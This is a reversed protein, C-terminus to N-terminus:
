SFKRRLQISKENLEIYKNREDEKTMNFEKMKASLEDAEETANKLKAQTETVFSTSVNYYLTSFACAIQVEQDLGNLYRTLSINLSSTKIKSLYPSDEHPSIFIWSQGPKKSMLPKLLTGLTHLISGGPSAYVNPIDSKMLQSSLFIPNIEVGPNEKEIYHYNQAHKHKTKVQGYLGIIPDTFQFPQFNCSKATEEKM